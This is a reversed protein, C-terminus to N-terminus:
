DVFEFETSLINACYYGDFREKFNVSVDGFTKNAETGEYFRKPGLVGVQGNLDVDEAHKIGRIRVKEGYPYSTKSM